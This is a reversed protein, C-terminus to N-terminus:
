DVCIKYGSLNSPSCYVIIGAAHLLLFGQCYSLRRPGLALVHGRRMWSFPDTSMHSGTFLSLVRCVYIGAAYLGMSNECGVSGVPSLALNIGAADMLM